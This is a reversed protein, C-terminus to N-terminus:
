YKREHPTYGRLFGVWWLFLFWKKQYTANIIGVAMLDAEWDDCIDYKGPIAKSLKDLLNIISIDKKLKQM